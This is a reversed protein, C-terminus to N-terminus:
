DISNPAFSLIVNSNLSNDCRRFDGDVVIFFLEVGPCKVARIM